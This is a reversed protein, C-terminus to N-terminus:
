THGFFILNMSTGQCLYYTISRDKERKEELIKIGSIRMRKKIEYYAKTADNQAKRLIRAYIEKMKMTSSMMKAIDLELVDLIFPFLIAEKVLLFENEELPRIKQSM